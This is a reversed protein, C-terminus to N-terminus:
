KRTKEEMGALIMELSKGKTEPIFAAVFIVGIASFIAFIFICGHLQLAATLIPLYQLFFSYTFPNILEYMFRSLCWQTSQTLGMEVQHWNEYCLLIWGVKVMLFACIWNTAICFSVTTSKIKPPMIEALLTFPITLIGSSGAFIVLSFSLIPIWNVIEVGYGLTKLFTYTGLIVHGCTMGLCSM